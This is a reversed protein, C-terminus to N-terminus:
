ELRCDAGCMQMVERDTFQEQRRIVISHYRIYVFKGQANMWKSTHWDYRHKFRWRHPMEHDSFFMLNVRNDEHQRTISYFKTIWCPIRLIEPSLGFSMPVSFLIKASSESYVIDTLQTPSNSVSEPKAALPLLHLKSVFISGVMDSNGEGMCLKVAFGRQNHTEDLSERGLTM